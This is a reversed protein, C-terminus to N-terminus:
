CSQLKNLKEYNPYRAAILLRYKPIVNTTEINTYDKSLQTFILDKTVERNIIFSYSSPCDQFLYEQMYYRKWSILIDYIKNIDHNQSCIIKDFFARISLKSYIEYGDPLYTYDICTNFNHEIKKKVNEYGFDAGLQRVFWPYSNIFIDLYIHPIYNDLILNHFFDDDCNITKVNDFRQFVFYFIAKIKEIFCDPLTALIIARHKEDQINDYLIYDLYASDFSYFVSISILNDVSIIYTNLHSVEIENIFISIDRYKVLYITKIYKTNEDIYISQSM